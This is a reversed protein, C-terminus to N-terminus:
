RQKSLLSIENIRFNKDHRYPFLPQQIARHIPISHSMQKKNFSFWDLIGIM